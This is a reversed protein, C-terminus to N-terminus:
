TLTYSTYPRPGLLFFHHNLTPFFAFFRISLFRIVTVFTGRGYVTGPAPHQIKKKLDRGGTCTEEVITGPILLTRKGGRSGSQLNDSVFIEPLVTKISDEPRLTCLEGGRCRMTYSLSQVITTSPLASFDPHFLPQVHGCCITKTADQLPLVLFIPPNEILKKLPSFYDMTSYDVPTEYECRITIKGNQNQLSDVFKQSLKAGGLNM